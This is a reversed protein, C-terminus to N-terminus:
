IEGDFSDVVTVAEPDHALAGSRMSTAAESYGKLDPKKNKKPPGRLPLSARIRLDPAVGRVGQTSPASGQGPSAMGKPIGAM